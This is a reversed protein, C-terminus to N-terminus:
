IIVKLLNHAWDGVLNTVISGPKYNHQETYLRKESWSNALTLILATSSLHDILLNSLM